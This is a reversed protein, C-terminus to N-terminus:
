PMWCCGDFQVTPSLDRHLRVCGYSLISVATAFDQGSLNMDEELTSIRAQGLSSRDLYNFIYLAWLCPVLTCDLRRVMKKDVERWNPIGLAELQDEASPPLAEAKEVEGVELNGADIASKPASEITDHKDMPIRDRECEREAHEVHETHVRYLEKDDRTTM